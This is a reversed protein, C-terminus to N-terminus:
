AISTEVRRNSGVCGMCISREFEGEEKRLVEGGKCPRVRMAPSFVGRVILGPRYVVYLLGNAVGQTRVSFTNTGRSGERRKPVLIHLVM